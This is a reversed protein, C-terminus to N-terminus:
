EQRLAVAPDTGSAHWAPVLCAALSAAAVLLASIALTPGLPRGSPAVLLTALLHSMALALGLGGAAGTLVLRVHQGLVLVTIRPRSAGVAVRIGIERRRRAAASAVVGYLGALALALGAVGVAAVVRLAVRAGFMARQSFYDELTRVDSVPQAADIERV